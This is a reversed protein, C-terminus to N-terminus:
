ERPDIADRLGDGVFTFGVVLMTLVLSSFFVEWPDAVMHQVGENLISGLDPNPAQVGLGLISLVAEISVLGIAIFSAQV